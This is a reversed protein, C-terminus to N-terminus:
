IYEIEADEMIEELEMFAEEVIEGISKSGWYADVCKAVEKAGYVKAMNELKEVALENIYDEVENCFKRVAEKLEEPFDEWRM